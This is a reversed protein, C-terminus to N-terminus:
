NSAGDRKWTHLEYRRRHQLGHCDNGITVKGELNQCRSNELMVTVLNARKYRDSFLEGVKLGLAILLSFLADTLEVQSPHASPQRGDYTNDPTCM